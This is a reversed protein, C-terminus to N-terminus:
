LQCPQPPFTTVCPLADYGSVCQELRTWDHYAAQCDHSECYSRVGAEVCGDPATNCRADRDCVSQVVFRVAAETSNPVVYADAGADPSIPASSSTCAALLFAAVFCRM